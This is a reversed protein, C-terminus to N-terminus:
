ALRARFDVFRPDNALEPRGIDRCFIPWFREKNCMVFLWGDRTRYLQSPTLSPHGSRAVREQVHGRNLYWAALYGVNHLATDFLSVDIDRGKGTRQAGLLAGVLAFATMLGSM